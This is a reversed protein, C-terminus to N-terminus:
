SVRNKIKDPFFSLLIKFLGEFYPPMNIFQMGRLRAPMAKLLILALKKLFAPTITVVKNFTLYQMDIICHYGCIVFLDDDNQMIDSFIGYIRFTEEVEIRGPEFLSCRM